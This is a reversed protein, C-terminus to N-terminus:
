QVGSDGGNNDKSDRYLKRYKEAQRQAVVQPDRNMHNVAITRLYLPTDAKDRSEAIATKVYKLTVGEDLWYQVMDWFKQNPKFHLGTETTWLELVSQSFDDFSSRRKDRTVDAHSGRSMQTVESDTTKTKLDKDKDTKSDTKADTDPKPEADPETDPETWPEGKALARKKAQRRAWQEREVKPSPGQESAFRCIDVQGDQVAVFGARQLEDLATQLDADARHLSYAIDDISAPKDSSLVLGGADSRGAQLYLELYVAKALDSMRAFKPEDLLSTRFKIWLYGHSLDRPKYDDLNVM